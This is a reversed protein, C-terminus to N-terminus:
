KDGKLTRRAEKLQCFSPALERREAASPGGDLLECDRAVARKTGTSIRSSHTSNRPKADMAAARAKLRSTIGGVGVERRPHARHRRGSVQILNQYEPTSLSNRYCVLRMEQLLITINSPEARYPGALV